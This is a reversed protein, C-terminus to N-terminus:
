TVSKNDEAYKSPLVHLTQGDSQSRRRSQDKQGDKREISPTPISVSSQCDTNFSSQHVTVDNASSVHEDDHEHKIIDTDCTLGENDVTGKNAQNDNLLPVGLDEELILTPSLNENQEHTPIVSLRAQEHELVAGTRIKM